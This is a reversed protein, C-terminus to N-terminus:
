KEAAHTSRERAAAAHRADSSQTHLRTRYMQATVRAEGSDDLFENVTPGLLGHPRHSQRNKEMNASVQIYTLGALMGFTAILPAAAPTLWIRRSGAAARAERVATINDVTVTSRGGSGAGALCAILVASAQNFERAVASHGNIAARYVHSLAGPESLLPM